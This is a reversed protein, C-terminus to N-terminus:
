PILYTSPFKGFLFRNYINREEIYNELNYTTCLHFFNYFGDYLINEIEILYVHFKERIQTSSTIVVSSELM